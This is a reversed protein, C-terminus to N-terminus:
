FKVGLDELYCVAYGNGNNAMAEIEDLTLLEFRTTIVNM